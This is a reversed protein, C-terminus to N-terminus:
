AVNGSFGYVFGKGDASSVDGGVIKNKYVLLNIYVAGDYDKFNTVNYTYRVVEKGKYKELSLGQSLQVKNYEEFVSDFEDPIKMEVEEVPKPDVTWGFGSIFAIRDSDTKIDTYSVASSSAASSASPVLIILSTLAAVSLVLVLAFKITSSRMSWIHM